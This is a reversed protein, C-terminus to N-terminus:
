SDATPAKLVGLWRMAPTITLGQVVVSFGVVLFTLTLIAPQYPMTVPLGLALALALAGRLGGWVLMHQHAWSLRHGSNRMLAALPYIAVARGLLVLMIAIIAPWVLMHLPQQASQLGVNLGILMFILSNAIFAAFEWFLELSESGKTSFEGWQLPGLRGAGMNGILLGTMLTSLVGSFHFQEALLFSGYAAIVTLTLEVLHDNTKRIIALVGIAVAGGCLLGGGVVKLLDVVVGLPTPTAGDAMALVVGFLVAAVGDNFLSEAEILSRLKGKVGTDKFMAIVSVPDTAAILVGFISAAMLPWGLLMVMGASTVVSALVLGVTAFVLVPTMVAKLEQWQICLAAEFILPPLLGIFILNKTLTFTPLSPVFTLGIGAMLLGVTYPVRFRRAIIAVLTAILLLFGLHEFSM